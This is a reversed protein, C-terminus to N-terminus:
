RFCAIGLSAAASLLSSYAWHMAARHPSARWCSATPSAANSWLNLRQGLVPGRMQWTRVANSDAEASEFLLMPGTKWSRASRNALRAHHEDSRGVGGRRDGPQFVQAMAPVVHDDEM